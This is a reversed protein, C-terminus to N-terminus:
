HQWSQDADDLADLRDLQQEADAVRQDAAQEHEVRQGHLEALELEALIRCTRHAALVGRDPLEDVVLLEAPERRRFLGSAERFAPLDVHALKRGLTRAACSAPRPLGRSVRDLLNPRAALCSTETRLPAPRAARSARPIRWWDRSRCAGTRARSAPAPAQARSRPCCPRARPTHLRHRG